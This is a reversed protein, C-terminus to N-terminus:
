YNESKEINSRTMLDVTRGFIAELEETMATLRVMTMGSGDDFTVMVDVDSDPRFDERLVSGFLALERVGWRECFTRIADMPLPINVNIHLTM